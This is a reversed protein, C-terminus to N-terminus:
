PPSGTPAILQGLSGFSASRTDDAAIDVHLSVLLLESVPFCFAGAMAMPLRAEPSVKGKQKFYLPEFYM